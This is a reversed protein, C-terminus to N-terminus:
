ATCLEDREEPVSVTCPVEIQDQSYPRSQRLNGLYEVLGLGEGGAVLEIGMLQGINYDLRELGSATFKYYQQVTADFCIRDGRRPNFEAMERSVSVWIHQSVVIQSGTHLPVDRFM